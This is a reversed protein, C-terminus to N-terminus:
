KLHILYDSDHSPIAIEDNDFEYTPATRESVTFSKQYLSNTFCVKDNVMMELAKIQRDNLRLEKLDIM